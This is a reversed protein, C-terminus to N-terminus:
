SWDASDLGRIVMKSSRMSSIRMGVFGVARRGVLKAASALIDTFVLSLLMLLGFEPSHSQYSCSFTGHQVAHRVLDRSLSPSSSPSSALLLSASVRSNRDSLSPQPTTSLPDREHRDVRRRSSRNSGLNRRCM